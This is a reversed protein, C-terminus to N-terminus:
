SGEKTLVFVLYTLISIKEQRAVVGTGDEVWECLRYIEGDYLLRHDAYCSVGIPLRSFTRDFGKMVFWDDEVYFEDGANDPVGAGWAKFRTEILHLKGNETMRFTERWQELEVSHMWQLSFTGDDPQAVWILEGTRQERFTLVSLHFVALFIGVILVGLLLFAYRKPM